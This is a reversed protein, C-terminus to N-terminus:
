LPNHPAFSSDFGLIDGRQQWPAPFEPILVPTRVLVLELKSLAGRISNYSPAFSRHTLRSLSQWVHQPLRSQLTRIGANVSQSSILMLLTLVISCGIDDSSTSILVSGGAILGKYIYLSCTFFLQSLSGASLKSWSRLFLYNFVHPESTIYRSRSNTIIHTIRRMWSSDLRGTGYTLDYWVGPLVEVSFDGSQGPSPRPFLSTFLSKLASPQDLISTVCHRAQCEFQLEQMWRNLPRDSQDVPTPTCTFPSAKLLEPTDYDSDTTSARSRTLSGGPSRPTEIPAACMEVLLKLVSLRFFRTRRWGQISVSEFMQTEPIEMDGLLVTERACLRRVKCLESASRTTGFLQQMACGRIEGLSLAYMLSENSVKLFLNHIVENALAYYVDSTANQLQANDNSHNTVYRKILANFTVISGWLLIRTFEFDLDNSKKM